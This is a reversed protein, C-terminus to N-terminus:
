ILGSPCPLDLVLSSTPLEVFDVLLIHYMSTDRHYHIKYASPYMGGQPTASPLPIPVHVMTNEHDAFSIIGGNPDEPPAEENPNLSALWELYEVTIMPEWFSLNGGEVGYIWTHTFSGGEQFESSTVPILHNGMGPEAPGPVLIYGPPFQDAPPEVMLFELSACDVNAIPPVGELPCVDDILPPLVCLNRRESSITYFHFDMHPVMYVFPPPHGEPNWNVGVHQFPLLNQVQQPFFLEYEYGALPIVTEGESNRIDWLGDSIPSVPLGQFATCPFEVGVSHIVVDKIEGENKKAKDKTGDSYELDALTRINGNSGFPIADGYFIQRKKKNGNMMMGGGKMVGGMMMGGGGPRVPSSQGDESARGLNGQSETKGRVSATAAHTSVVLEGFFGLLFLLRITPTSNQKAKSLLFRM